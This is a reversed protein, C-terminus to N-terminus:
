KIRRVEEGLNENNLNFIEPANPSYFIDLKKHSFSNNLHNSYDTCDNKKLNQSGINRDSIKNIEDIRKKIIKKSKKLLKEFAEDM